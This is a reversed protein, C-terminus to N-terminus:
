NPKRTFNEETGLNHGVAPEFYVQEMVADIRRQRAVSWKGYHGRVIEPSNGLVGAVEEFSTGRGLQDPRPGVDVCRWDAVSHLAAYPDHQPLPAVEAYYIAAFPYDLTTVAQVDIYRSNPPSSYVTIQSVTQSPM